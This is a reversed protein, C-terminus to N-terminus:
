DRRRFGLQPPLLSGVDLGIQVRQDPGTLNFQFTMPLGPIPITRGQVQDLLFQRGQPNSLVGALAGGGLIVGHTIVLVREGTSLSDWNTRLQREAETQLATVGSQVAPIQLIAKLLDGMNATRPTEPGAGRPVLPAPQPLSPLNLGLSAGSQTASPQTVPPVLNPSGLPAVPSTLNVGNLARVSQTINDISILGRMFQIARIQAEIQPDIRLQPVSLGLRPQRFGLGQGLAPEQLQFQSSRAEPQRLRREDDEPGQRQLTNAATQEISASPHQSTVTRAVADAEREEASDAKGIHLQTHTVGGQQAVHTLEHALLQKGKNTEPHYQRAGFVLDRGVTYALADVAQVSAEAETDTHVRVRSFDHGFRPEM